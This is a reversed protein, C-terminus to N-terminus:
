NRGFASCAPTQALVGLCLDISSLYLRSGAFGHPLLRPNPSFTGWLGQPAPTQALGEMFTGCPQFKAQGMGFDQSYFVLIQALCIGSGQPPSLKPGTNRGGFFCKPAPIQALRGGCFFFFLSKCWLEVVGCTGPTTRETLSVRLLWNTSFQLPTTCLSVSCSCLITHFRVVWRQYTGMSSYSMGLQFPVWLSWRIRGKAECLFM